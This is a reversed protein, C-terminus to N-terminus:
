SVPLELLLLGLKLCEVNLYRLYETFALLFYVYMIEVAKM